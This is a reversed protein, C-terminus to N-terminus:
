VLGQIKQNAVLVTSFSQPDLGLEEDYPGEIHKARRGLDIAANKAVRQVWAELNGIQDLDQHDLKAITDQAIDQTDAGAGARSAASAALGRLELLREADLDDTNMVSVIPM